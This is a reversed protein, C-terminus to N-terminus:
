CALICLLRSYMVAYRLWRVPQIRWDGRDAQTRKENQFICRRAGLVAHGALSALLTPETPALMHGVHPRPTGPPLPAARASSARRSTSSRFAAPPPVWSSVARGPGAHASTLPAPLTLPDNVSDHSCSCARGICPQLLISTRPMGTMLRRRWRRRPHGIAHREACPPSLSPQRPVCGHWLTVRHPHGDVVGRMADHTMCYAAYAVLGIAALDEGHPRCAAIESPKPSRFDKAKGMDLGFLMWRM